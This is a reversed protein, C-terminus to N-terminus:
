GKVVITQVNVFERIGWCGLERGVGSHKVGGFPLRPDSAVMTNIFCCGAQLHDTAMRAAAATDATLIAAGLGYATDNAIRLADATDQAALVAGVPGFLEEDAAPHGKQVGSLVTPPYYFGETDPVKGGCLCEAGKAVSEEVQQHLTDRLDRRALPGLITEPDLPDGFRIAQMRRVVAQVFPEHIAPTTIWRKAAICSQGNNVMRSRVCIEAAQEPDADELVLYPDSGGLELVTKKLSAGAQSAISSGARTSGTFTVAQIEPRPILTAVTPHDVCLLEVVGEPLGATQLVDMLDLACGYTPEAPKLLATNGAMCAPALFRFAQWFPFNWPMIALVPGLPPFHVTAHGTDTHLNEPALYEAAKEAYHRCVWACKHIENQGAQLPKGMEKAMRIALPEARAELTSAIRDLLVARDPLSQMKWNNFAHASRLVKRIAQEQTEYAYRELPRGTAPNLTTFSTSMM